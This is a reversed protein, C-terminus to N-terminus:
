LQLLNCGQGGLDPNQQKSCELKMGSNYKIVTINFRMGTREVLTKTGNLGWLEQKNFPFSEKSNSNSIRKREDIVALVLHIHKKDKTSLPGNKFLHIFAKLLNDAAVSTENKKPPPLSDKDVYRLISNNVMDENIKNIIDDEKDDGHKIKSNKPIKRKRINGELKFRAYGSQEQLFEGLISKVFDESGKKCLDTLYNVTRELQERLKSIEGVSKRKVHIIYVDNGRGVLIDSFEFKDQNGGLKITKKDLCLASFEDQRENIAKVARVNYKGEKEGTYDILGLMEQPILREKLASELVSFRSEDVKYWHKNELRYFNGDYEFPLSDFIRKIPYKVPKRGQKVPVETDLTIDTRDELEKLMNPIKRRKDSSNKFIFMNQLLISRRGKNTSVELNLIETLKGILIEDTVYTDIYPALVTHPTLPIDYLCKAVEYLSRITEEKEIELNFSDSLEENNVHFYLISDNGRLVRNTNIVSKDPIFKIESLYESGLEKKFENFNKPHQVREKTTSPNSSLFEKSSVEKVAEPNFITESGAVRLGWKDMLVDHNILDSHWRGFGYVMYSNGIPFIILSSYRRNEYDDDIGEDGEDQIKTLIRSKPEKTKQEYDIKYYFIQKGDEGSLFREERKVAKIGRVNEKLLKSIDDYKEGTPLDSKEVRFLSQWSRTCEFFHLDGEGLFDLLPKKEEQEVPEPKFM